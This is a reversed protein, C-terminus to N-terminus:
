APRSPGTHGTWARTPQLPVNTSMCQERFHARERRAFTNILGVETLGYMTYLSVGQAALANGVPENLAAGGFIQPRHEHLCRDWRSTYSRVSVVGRMRKM